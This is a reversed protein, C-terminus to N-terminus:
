NDPKSLEAELYKIKNLKELIVEESILPPTTFSLLDIASASVPNPTLIDQEVKQQSVNMTHLNYEWIIDDLDSDMTYEQTIYCGQKGLDYLKKLMIVKEKYKVDEEVKAVKLGKAEEIQETINNIINPLEIFNESVIKVCHKRYYMLFSPYKTINNFIPSKNSEFTDRNVYIFIHSPFKKSLSVISEIYRPSINSTTFLAIILDEYHKKLVNKFTGENLTRFINNM